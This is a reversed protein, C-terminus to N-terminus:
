FLNQLCLLEKQGTNVINSNPSTWVRKVNKISEEHDGALGQQLILSLMIRVVLYEM